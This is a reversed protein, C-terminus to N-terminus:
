DSSKLLTIKEVVRKYRGHIEIFYIGDSVIKGNNNKRDWSIERENPEVIDISWDNIKEGLINYINVKVKQSLTSLIKIRVKSNKYIFPNPYIGSVVLDESYGDDITITYDWGDADQEQASIILIMVRGFPGNIKMEM